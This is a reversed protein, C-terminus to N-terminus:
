SHLVNQRSCSPKPYFKDKFFLATLSLNTVSHESNGVKLFYDKSCESNGDSNGSMKDYPM